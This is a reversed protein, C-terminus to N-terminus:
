AVLIFVLTGAAALGSAPLPPVRLLGFSFILATIALVLVETRLSPRRLWDGRVLNLFETARVEVTPMLALSSSSGSKVSFPTRLEDRKEMSASKMSHTGIFVTKHRFYGPPSTLAQEYSLHPLADPPGYYHVWRENKQDAPDRPRKLAMQAAVWSLSPLGDQINDFSHAHRRVMFDGDPQLLDLGRAAAAHAFPPYLPELNKKLSGNITEGSALDQALIVRGNAQIAAALEQDSQSRPGPGDFVIDIVAARAGDAQFRRLLRAHSMRDIPQISSQGFSTVHGAADVYVIVVEPAEVNPTVRTLTYTCDYSARTLMKSWRSEITLVLLGATFVIAACLLSVAPRLIFRKGHEPDGRLTERLNQFSFTLAEPLPLVAIRKRVSTM